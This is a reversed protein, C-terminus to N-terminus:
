KNISSACSKVGNCHRMASFVFALKKQHHQVYTAEGMVEAMLVVTSEQHLGRLSSIAPTLQDGLVVTLTKPDSNASNM